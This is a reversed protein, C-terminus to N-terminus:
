ARSDLDFSKTQKKAHDSKKREQTYNAYSLRWNFCKDNNAKLTSQTNKKKFDCLNMMTTMM